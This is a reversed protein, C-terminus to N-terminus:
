PKLNAPLEEAKDFLVWKEAPIGKFANAMRANDRTEKTVNRVFIREIRSPNDMALRAYIEPDQEGTDGVLIFRRKQWRELLPRIAGLKYEHQPGLFAVITEPDAFRLHKLHWAGAPFKKERVFTELPTYLQWPSGSVYHFVAGDEAAWRQYAAAMGPVEEFPKSFTNTIAARRDRVNTIKITDDVDSIVMPAATDSMPLVTGAFSREDGKSLVASVPMPGSTTAALIVTKQFHGNAASKPLQFPTGAVTIPVAKDRENDALFFKLRGDLLKKEDATLKEPDFGLARGLGAAVAPLSEEEFIIGHLDVEWKGAEKAPWAASTYFMVTEDSKVPSEVDEGFVSRGGDVLLFAALAWSRVLKRNMM